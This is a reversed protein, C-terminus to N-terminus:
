KFDSSDIKRSDKQLIRNKIKEEARKAITIHDYNQFYWRRVKFIKRFISIYNKVNTINRQM